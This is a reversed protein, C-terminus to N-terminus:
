FGRPMGVAEFAEALADLCDPWDRKGRAEIAEDLEEEADTRANAAATAAGGGPQLAAQLRAINSTCAAEPNAVNAFDDDGSCGTVSLALVGTFALNKALSLVRTTAM